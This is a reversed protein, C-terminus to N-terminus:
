KRLYINKYFIKMLYLSLEMNLQILRSSNRLRFKKISTLTCRHQVSDSSKRLYFNKYFNKDTVSFNFFYNVDMVNSM